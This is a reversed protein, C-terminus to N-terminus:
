ILVHLLIKCSMLLVTVTLLFVCFVRKTAGHHAYTIDQIENHIYNFQSLPCLDKAFYIYIYICIYISLYMSLDIGIYM